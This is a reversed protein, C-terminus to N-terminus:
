DCAAHRKQRGNHQDGEAHAKGRVRFGCSACRTSHSKLRLGHRESPFKRDKKQHDEM